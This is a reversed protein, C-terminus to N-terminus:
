SMRYRCRADSNCRNRRQMLTYMAVARVRGTGAQRIVSCFRTRPKLAARSSARARHRRACGRVAERRHLDAVLRRQARPEEELTSALMTLRDRGGKGHGALIERRELDIDKVRLSCAELLRLGRGYMLLVILRPVGAMEAVVQGVESRTLVTPRLAPKKARVLGELWGFPTELVERYLFLLAGLAQNQTSAAVRRVTALHTLFATVEPEGLDRPHRRGHYRVCLGGM